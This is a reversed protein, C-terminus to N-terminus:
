AVLVEVSEDEPKFFIKQEFAEQVTKVHSIVLVVGFRSAVQKVADIVMPLFEDSQSGFGEDITLWDVKSGARRALLEALAFRIAFDIRLQEGGSYTEYIREGAWDGVIIDLTEAMGSRSKLEKQTEFKLYNKGGSMQGLIDNAIRELEPVANEIILAPIGDRSFAKVLTQYRVVKKSLPAMEDVLTQRTIEDETLADLKAQIGGLAAVLRTLEDRSVQLATQLNTCKNKAAQELGKADGIISEYEAELKTAQETLATIEANLRTIVENASTSVERAIALQDKSLLYPQLLKIKEEMAPLEKVGEALVRYQERMSKIRTELNTQRALYESNQKKYNDLLQIQGDLKAFAEADPQLTNVLGQLRSWETTQYNLGNMQVKLDEQQKQLNEADPNKLVEIQALLETVRGQAEKADKLFACEARKIDICQANQLIITKGELLKIEKSLNTKKMEFRTASLELAKQVDLRQRSLDEYSIKLTDIKAFDTIAQKYDAAAIELRPRDALISELKVIEDNTNKLSTVVGALEEELRMTDTQLTTQQERQTQLVTVQQQTQEYEVVKTLITEEQLLLKNATDLRGQQRDREITKADIAVRLGEAQKGIEDAQQIRAVLVNHEVQAAQLDADAKKIQTEIAVKKVQVELKQAELGQKASLRGDIESVRVKVKELELTTSQLKAKAKEQLTEYQDLQLVQALIAKRQGAPRSTFENAKGQLIMSSSSFTEADLNLLAIIKKQTEAISAGSESAWLEGSKRQLELTTKGKGKTSRTRITRFIEGQHEYDFIVEAETTGMRVMDDASTGPKTTGRM